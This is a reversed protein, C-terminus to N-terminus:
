DWAVSGRTMQEDSHQVWVIPAGDARAREVLEGIHAVVADRRYAQAMVGHQVDIVILATRPRDSLTTVTMEKALGSHDPAHM